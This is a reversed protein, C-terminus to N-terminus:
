LCACLKVYRFVFDTLLVLALNFLLPYSSSLFVNHVLFLPVMDNSLFHILDFYRFVVGAIEM